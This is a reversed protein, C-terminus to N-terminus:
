EDIESRLVRTARYLTSVVQFRAWFLYFSKNFGEYTMFYPGVLIPPAGVLFLMGGRGVENLDRRTEEDDKCPVTGMMLIGTDVVIFTGRGLFLLSLLHSGVWRIFSLCWILFIGLLRVISSNIFILCLYSTGGQTPIINAGRCKHSALSRWHPSPHDMQCRKFSSELVRKGYHHRTDEVYNVNVEGLDIRVFPFSKTMVSSCPISRILSLIMHIYQRFIFPRSLSLTYIDHITPCPSCRFSVLLEVPHM